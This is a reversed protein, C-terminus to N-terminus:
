RKEVSNYWLRYKTSFFAFLLMHLTTKSIVHRLRTLIAKGWSIKLSVHNIHYTWSLTSDILVELYKAYEKEKIHEGMIKIDPKYTVKSKRFITLNLRGVNSSLKNANLWESVHKLEKNYVRDIEEVKKVLLTSSDDSFLFFNLIKSSNKIDPIYLLFLTPGLISGQRM